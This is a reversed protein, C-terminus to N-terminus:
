IVSPIDIRIIKIPIGKQRAKWLVDASGRSIGDWYIIVRDAADVVRQNRIPGAARNEKDWDAKFVIAREGFEEKVLADTGRADGTIIVDQNGVEGEIEKLFRERDTFTRTGVIAIMM